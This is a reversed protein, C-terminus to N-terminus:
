FLEKIQKDSFMEICNEFQQLITIATDESVNVMLFLLLHNLFAHLIYRENAFPSWLQLCLQLLFHHYNDSFWQGKLPLSCQSFLCSAKLTDYASILEFHILTKICPQNFFLYLKQKWFFIYLDDFCSLTDWMVLWQLIVFLIMSCWLVSKLSALILFAFPTHKHLYLSSPVGRGKNTPIYILIDM